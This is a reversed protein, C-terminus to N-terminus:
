NISTRNGAPSLGSLSQRSKRVEAQLVEMLFKLYDEETANGQTERSEDGGGPTQQNLFAALQQALDRLFGAQNEEGAEQLQQALLECLQM